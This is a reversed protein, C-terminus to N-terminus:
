NIQIKKDFDKSTNWRFFINMFFHQSLLLLEEISTKAM